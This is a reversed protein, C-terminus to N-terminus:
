MRERWGRGPSGNKVHGHPDYDSDSAFRAKARNLADTVSAARYDGIITRVLRIIEQQLAHERRVKGGRKRCWIARARTLPTTGLRYQFFAAAAPAHAAAAL